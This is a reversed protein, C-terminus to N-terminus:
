NLVEDLIPKLLKILIRYDNNPDTEKERLIPSWYLPAQTTGFRLKEIAKDRDGPHGRGLLAASQLIQIQGPPTPNKVKPTPSQVPPLTSLVDLAKDFAGAAVYAFAVSYDSAPSGDRLEEYYKTAEPVRGSQLFAYALNRKVTRNTPAIDFAKQFYGIATRYDQKFAATSGKVSLARLHNPQQALIRDAQDDAAGYESQEFNAVMVRDWEDVQTPHQHLEHISYAAVSALILAIVLTTRLLLRYRKYSQDLRDSALQFRQERTLGESSIRMGVLVTDLADILENGKLKEIARLKDRQVTAHWKTFVAALFALLSTGGGVAGAAKWLEPSLNM